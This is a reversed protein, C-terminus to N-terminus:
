PLRQGVFLAVLAAIVATFTGLTLWPRTADTFKTEYGIQQGVTNYVNKIEEATAAKYFQGGSIDAVKRLSEDDVAVKITRGNLDITGYATGFSITSIPIKANHAKAAEAFEDRGVTQAGDSMLVIRAPLPGDPGPVAKGFSELAAVAAAIADGTATAPALKLVDIANAVANRDTTPAALVAASGAFSMLGLNIGPTLGQVFSKAATQAAQLRTPKVDTCEMSLSVDVVLMVVARSRPVRQEAQPGAMATTLLLLSVILLAAPVHRPWGPRKPAVKDLLELNTFRMTHRRRRRQAWLYGAALGAVVLLLLFSWPATFSQLSLGLM